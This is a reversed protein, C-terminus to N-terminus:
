KKMAAPLKPRIKPEMLLCQHDLNGLPPLHTVDNYMTSMNTLIQYLVNDGRTPAHVCRLNFRRCVPNFNMKNFDGCVIIGAAPRSLLIEDHWDDTLYDNM